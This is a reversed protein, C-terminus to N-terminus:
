EPLRLKCCGFDLCSPDASVDPHLRYIVFRGRKNREVIGSEEMIGLHYSVMKMDLPLEEGIQSVNRPGNRLLQVILLRDKDAVGFLREACEKAQKQKM